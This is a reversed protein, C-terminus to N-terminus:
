VRGAARLPDRYETKAPKPDGPQRYARRLHPACYSRGEVSPKGCMEYDGNKPDGEIWQCTKAPAVAMMPRDARQNPKRVLGLNARQRVIANISRDELKEAIEADSLGREFLKRLTDLEARTWPLAASRRPLGLEAARTFVSPKSRGLAEAIEEAEANAEWLERLLEDDEDTWRNPHNSM